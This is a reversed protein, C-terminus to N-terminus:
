ERTIFNDTNLLVRAAAFMPESETATYAQLVALEKASPARGLTLLFGRQLQSALDKGERQM